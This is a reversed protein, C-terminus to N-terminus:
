AVLFQEPGFCALSRVWWAGHRLFRDGICPKRCFPWVASILRLVTLQNLTRM